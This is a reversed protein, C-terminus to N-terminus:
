SGIIVSDTKEEPFYSIPLRSVTSSIPIVDFGCRQEDVGDIFTVDIPSSNYLDYTRIKGKTRYSVNLNLQKVVKTMLHKSALIAIENDVNPIIKMSGLDSFASATANGRRSDKILISSSRSYTKPTKYIYFSAIFLCVLISVVFWIWNGLVMDVIDRLSYSGDQTDDTSINKDIEAM